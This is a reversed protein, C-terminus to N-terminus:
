ERRRVLSILSNKEAILVFNDDFCDLESKTNRKCHNFFDEPKSHSLVNQLNNFVGRAYGIAGERYHLDMIAKKNLTIVRYLRLRSSKYRGMIKRAADDDKALSHMRIESWACLQLKFEEWLSPSRISDWHRQLTAMSLFLLMLIMAVLIVGATGYAWWPLESLWNKIEESSGGFFGSVIGIVVVALKDVIPRFFHKFLGEDSMTVIGM